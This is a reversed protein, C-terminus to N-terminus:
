YLFLSVTATHQVASLEEFISMRKTPAYPLWAIEILLGRLLKLQVVLARRLSPHGGLKKLAPQRAKILLHMRFAAVNKKEDIIDRRVTGDFMYRMDLKAHERGVRGGKQLRLTGANDARELVLDALNLM